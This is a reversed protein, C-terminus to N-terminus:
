FTFTAAMMARDADFSTGDGQKRTGTFYEASLQVSDTVDYFASLHLTTLKKTDTGAATDLNTWGTTAALTWKEGVEQQVGLSFATVGVEDGGTSLATGGLAFALIDSIGEGTTVIGSLRGGEWANIWGGLSLGWGQVKTGSIDTDRYLGALRVMGNDFGKRAALTYHVDNDNSKDEEVSASVKWDGAFEHTYRIQPLRAFPVGAPGQFDVTKGLNEVSMFNTWYQGVMLGQWAIIAHRTRFNIDNTGFFDGEYKVLVDGFRLDAGLRTENLHADTFSGAAPGGPLGINKLGFTTDGLDYDYDSIFSAKIYGYFTLSSGGGLDFSLPNNDEALAPAVFLTTALAAGSLHKFLTM